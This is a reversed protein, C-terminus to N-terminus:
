APRKSGRRNKSRKGANDRESTAEAMCEEQLAKWDAATMPTAPGSQLGELLLADVQARVQQLQDCQVLFAVYDSASGLAGSKVRDRVFKKQEKSLSILLQAM